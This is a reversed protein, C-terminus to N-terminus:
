PNTSNVPRNRNLFGGPGTPSAFRALVEAYNHSIVEWCIFIIDAVSTISLGVAAVDLKRPEAGEISVFIRDKDMLREAMQRLTKGDMKSSLKEFAEKMASQKIEDSEGQKGNVVALLPGAIQKQLDGLIELAEFPPFRHIYFKNSGIEVERVNNGAM